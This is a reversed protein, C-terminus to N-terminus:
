AANPPAAALADSLRRLAAPLDRRIAEAATDTPGRFLVFATLTDGRTVFREVLAHQHQRYTERLLRRLRNREVATRRRGPAFGIQVPADTGTEARPVVRYRIQVAGDRVRGVDARTRDFLPRILRRRKLRQARALGSRRPVASATRNM